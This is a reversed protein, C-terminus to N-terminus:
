DEGCSSNTERSYHRILNEVDDYSVLFYLWFLGMAFYDREMPNAAIYMLLILTFIYNGKLNLSLKNFLKFYIILFYLLGFVGFRVAIRSIGNTGTIIRDYINKSLGDENIGFGIPFSALDKMDNVFISMRNVRERTIIGAESFSYAEDIFGQLKDGVFPLQFIYIAVPIFIALTVLKIFVSSSSIFYFGFLLLTIYFNTSFTTLGVLAFVIFRKNVSGRHLFLNFIMALGLYYGYTGPEGGFGSNRLPHYTSFNFILGNWHGDSMRNQEALNFPIKYFLGPNVLQVIYFLISILALSFVIKEYWLIFNVKTVKIFLYGIYIKLISGIFTAYKFSAGGLINYALFNIICWYLLVFFIVRDLREEKYFLIYCTGLFSSIILIADSSGLQNIPLLGFFCFIFFAYDLRDTRENHIAIGNM